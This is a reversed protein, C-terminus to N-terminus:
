DTVKIDNRLYRLLIEADKKWFIINSAPEDAVELFTELMSIIREIDENM